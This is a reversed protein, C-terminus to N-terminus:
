AAPLNIVFTDLITSSLEVTSLIVYIDDRTYRRHRHHHHRRHRRHYHYFTNVAFTCIDSNRMTSFALPDMGHNLRCWGHQRCTLSHLRYRWLATTKRCWREGSSCKQVVDARPQETRHRRFTVFNIWLSMWETLLFFHRVDIVFIWLNWFVFENSPHEVFARVLWLSNQWTFEGTKCVKLMKDNKEAKLTSHLAISLQPSLKTQILYIIIIVVIVLSSVVIASFIHSYYSTLSVTSWKL